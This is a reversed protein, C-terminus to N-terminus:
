PWRGKDPPMSAAESGRAGPATVTRGPGTAQGRRHGWLRATAGSWVGQGSVCWGRPGAQDPLRRGRGGAVSTQARQAGGSHARGWLQLGRRQGLAGRAGKGTGRAAGLAWRRPGEADSCLTQTQSPSSPSGARTSLEGETRPSLGHGCSRRPSGPAWHPRRRGWSRAPPGHVAAAMGSCVGM